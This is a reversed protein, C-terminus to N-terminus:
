QFYSFFRKVQRDLVYFVRLHGRLCGWSASTYNQSHLCQVAQWYLYFM